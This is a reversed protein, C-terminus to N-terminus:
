LWGNRVIHRAFVGNWSNTHSNFCSRSVFGFETWIHEKMKLWIFNTNPLYQAFDCSYILLICEALQTDLAVISRYADLRKICLLEMWLVYPYISGAHTFINACIYSFVILLCTAWYAECPFYAWGNSKYRLDEMIIWESPRTCVHVWVCIYIYM